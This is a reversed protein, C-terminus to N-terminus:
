FYNSRCALRITQSRLLWFAGAEPLSLPPVIFFVIFAALTAANKIV